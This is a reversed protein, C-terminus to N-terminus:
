DLIQYDTQQEVLTGTIVALASRDIMIVDHVSQRKADDDDASWGRSYSVDFAHRRIRKQQLKLTPWKTRHACLASVISSSYLLMLNSIHTSIRNILMSTSSKQPCWYCILCRAIVFAAILTFLCTLLDFLLYVIGKIPYVSHVRVLLSPLVLFLPTSFYSNDSITIFSAFEFRFCIFSSYIVLLQFRAIFNDTSQYM